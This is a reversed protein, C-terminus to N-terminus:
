GRLSRAHCRGGFWDNGELHAFEDLEGQATAVQAALAVEYPTLPGQGAGSAVLAELAGARVAVLLLDAKGVIDFRGVEDQADLAPNITQEHSPLALTGALGFKRPLRRLDPSAPVRARGPLSRFTM